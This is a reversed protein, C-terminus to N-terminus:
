VEGCRVTGSAPPGLRVGQGPRQPVPLRGELGGGAEATERVHPWTAGNKVPREGETNAGLDGKKTLDSTM